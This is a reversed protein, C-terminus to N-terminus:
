PLSWVTSDFSATIERIRRERRSRRAAEIQFRVWILGAIVAIICLLGVVSIVVHAVSM